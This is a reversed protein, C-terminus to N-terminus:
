DYGLCLRAGALRRRFERNGALEEIRIKEDYNARIIGIARGIQSLHSNWSASTQQRERSCV